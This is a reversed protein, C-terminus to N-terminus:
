RLVRAEVTGRQLQDNRPILNQRADRGVNRNKRSFGIAIRKLGPQGGACAKQSHQWVVEQYQRGVLRRKGPHPHAEVLDDVTM